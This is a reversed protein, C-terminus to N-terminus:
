PKGNQRPISQSSIRRVERRMDCAAGYSASAAEVHRHVAKALEGAEAEVEAKLTEVQQTVESKKRSRNSM